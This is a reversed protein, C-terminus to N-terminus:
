IGQDRGIKNVRVLPTKGVADLVNEYIKQPIPDFPTHKLDTAQSLM